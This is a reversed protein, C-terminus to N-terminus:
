DFANKFSDTREDTEYMNPDMVPANMMMENFDNTAPASENISVRNYDFPSAEVANAFVGNSNITTNRESPVFKDM